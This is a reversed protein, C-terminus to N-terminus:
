RVRYYSTCFCLLMGLVISSPEPIPANGYFSITYSGDSKGRYDTGSPGPPGMPVYDVSVLHITQEVSTLQWNEPNTDYFTVYPSAFPFNKSLGHSIGCIGGFSCSMKISTYIWQDNSSLFNQFQTLQSPTAQIISGEDTPDYTGSMPLVGGGVFSVYFQLEEPGKYYDITDTGHFTFEALLAAHCTSVLLLFALLTKM